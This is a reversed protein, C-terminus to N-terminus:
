ILKGALNLAVRLFNRNKYIYRRHKFGYYVTKWKTRFSGYGRYYEYVDKLFPLDTERYVGFEMYTRIRESYDYFRKKMLERRKVSFMKKLSEIRVVRRDKAGIANRGHQRYRVLPEDVYRVGNHAAANVAFWWDHVMAKPPIPLSKMIIDRRALMACGTFCNRFIVIRYQEEMSPVFLGQYKTLSPAIEHGRGDIVSLDSAAIDCDGIADLLREIKHAEWVDDQDCLAIFEGSCKLLANEFNKMFGINKENISFRVRSFKEAYSAIIKGTGDTSADDSIVIEINKYTQGLISDMQQQLYKSGNYTAIAVSVLPNKKM